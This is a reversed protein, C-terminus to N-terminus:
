SLGKVDINKQVILARTELNFAVLNGLDSFDTFVCGGDIYINKNNSDVIDRIQSISVPTHGCIVPKGMDPSPDRSWLMSDLDSFVNKGGLWNFGAHVIFYDPEEHYMILNKMWKIWKEWDEQPVSHLTRDGGCALWYKYDDVGKHSFYELAIEEHNGKLLITECPCNTVTKFVGNSDPGRDIYDGVFIVKDEKTLKLRSLLKQLTKNCGHIDGIAYRM